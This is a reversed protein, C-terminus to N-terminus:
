EIFRTSAHVTKKYWIYIYICWGIDNFCNLTNPWCGCIRWKASPNQFTKFVHKVVPFYVAVCDCGLLDMPSAYKGVNVMFILWEDLYIYLRGMSVKPLTKNAVTTKTWRWIMTPHCRNLRSQLTRPTALSLLNMRSFHHELSRQHGLAPKM